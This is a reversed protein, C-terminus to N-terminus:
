SRSDIAKRARVLQDAFTKLDEWPATTTVITTHDKKVKVLSRTKGDPSIYAVWDDKTGTSDGWAWSSDTSSDALVGDSTQEDIFAKHTAHSQVLAFFENDPSVWGTFWVSKDASQSTPELRASTSRWGDGVTPMLVRYNAERVALSAIPFPDRERVPDPQPRWTLLLLVAIVVLVVALSRVIDGVTKRLPDHKAPKTAASEARAGDLPPQRALANAM